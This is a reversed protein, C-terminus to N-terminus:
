ERVPQRSLIQAAENRVGFALHNESIATLKVRLGDSLRHEGSAIGRLILLPVLLGDENLLEDLRGAIPEGAFSVRAQALALAQGTEARVYANRDTSLLLVSAVAWDPPAARSGVITGLTRAAEIRSREDGGGLESVALMLQEQPLVDLSALLRLAPPFPNTGDDDFFHSARESNLLSEASEAFANRVRAPVQEPHKAIRELAAAKSSRGVHTSTLCETLPGWLDVAGVYLILGVAIDCPDVSYGTHMGHSAEAQISELVGHVHAAGDEALWPPAQTGEIVANLEGVVTGLTLEDPRVAVAHSPRLKPDLSQVISQWGGTRGDDTLWTRWRTLLHQPLESWEIGSLGREHANALLQDDISGFAEISDLIWEALAAQRKAIPALAGATRLVNEFRLAPLELGNHEVVGPQLAGVVAEYAVGATSPDLVQAALELTALEVSRLRTPNLRYRVVSAADERLATLPGRSRVYNLALRLTKVDESHRLLRLGERTNEGTTGDPIRLLRSQGLTRRINRSHSAHGSLEFFNLGKWQPADVVDENRFVRERSMTTTRFLENIHASQGSRISLLTGVTLACPRRRLLRRLEQANPFGAHIETSDSNAETIAQVMERNTGVPGWLSGQSTLYKGMTSPNVLRLLRRVEDVHNSSDEGIESLRIAQQQLLVAKWFIGDHDDPLPAHRALVVELMSLADEHRDLECLIVSALLSASLVVGPEDSNHLAIERLGTAGERITDSRFASKATEILRTESDTMPASMRASLESLEHDRGQIVIGLLGPPTVVDTSAFNQHPTVSRPSLLAAAWNALTM